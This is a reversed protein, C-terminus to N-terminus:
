DEANFNLMFLFAKFVALVLIDSKMARIPLLGHCFSNRINWGLGSKTSFVHRWYEVTKEEFHDKAKGLLGDFLVFNEIGPREQPSIIDEGLDGLIKRLSDEFLPIWFALAIHQHGSLWASFGEMFKEIADDDWTLYAKLFGGIRQYVRHEGDYPAKLWNKVPEALERLFAVLLMEGTLYHIREPTSATRGADVRGDDPSVEISQIIGAEELLGSAFLNTPGPQNPDFPTPRVGSFDGALYDLKQDNEVTQWLNLSHQIMENIEAAIPSDAPLTISPGFDIERVRASLMQQIRSADEQRNARRYYNRTEQLKILRGIGNSFNSLRESIIGRKFEVEKLNHFWTFSQLRNLRITSEFDNTQLLADILNRFEQNIIGLVPNEGRFTEEYNRFFSETTEWESAALLAAIKGKVADVAEGREPTVLADKLAVIEPFDM